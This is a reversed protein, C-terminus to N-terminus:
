AQLLESAVVHWFGVMLADFKPRKMMDMVIWGLLGPFQDSRIAAVAERGFMQGIRIDMSWDGTSKAVWWQRPFEAPKPNPRMRVFPLATSAHPTRITSAHHEAQAM